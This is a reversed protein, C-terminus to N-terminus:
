TARRVLLGALSWDATPLGGAEGTVAIRTTALFDGTVDKWLYYARQGRSWSAHASHITLVGGSVSARAPASEPADGQTQSWGDPAAGDFDDSLSTVPPAARAAGAAASVIIVAALLQLARRAM